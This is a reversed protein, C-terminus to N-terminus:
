NKFDFIQNIKLSTM